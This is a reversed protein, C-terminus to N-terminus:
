STLRSGASGNDDTVRELFSRGFSTDTVVIGTAPVIIGLALAVVLDAQRLRTRGLAISAVRVAIMAALVLVSMATAARAGFALCALLLLLIIGNRLVFGRVTGTVVALGCVTILGN